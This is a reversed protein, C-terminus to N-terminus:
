RLIMFLLLALFSLVGSGAGAAALYTMLRVREQLKEFRDSIMRTSEGQHEAIEKLDGRILHHSRVIVERLEREEKQTLKTEDPATEGRITRRIAELPSSQEQKEPPEKVSQLEQPEEEVAPPAITLTDLYRCYEELHAYGEATIGRAVLPARRARLHEVHSGVSQENLFPSIKQRCSYCFARETGAWLEDTENFFTLRCGCNVCNMNGMVGKKLLRSVGFDSDSPIGSFAM